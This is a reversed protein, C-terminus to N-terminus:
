GQLGLTELRELHVRLDPNVRPVRAAVPVPCVRLVRRDLLDRLDRLVRLVVLARSEKLVQVALPVMKVLQVQVVGEVPSVVPEKHM